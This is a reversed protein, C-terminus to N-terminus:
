SGEAKKCLLKKKSLSKQRARIRKATEYGDLVPMMIDMLILDMEPDEALL